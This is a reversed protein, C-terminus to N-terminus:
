WEFDKANIDTLELKSFDPDTMYIKSLDSSGFGKDGRESVTDFETVTEVEPTVVPSIVLQAIKDGKGIVHLSERCDVIIGVDGDYGSDITGLQVRMPTKLTMGSRPRVQAEYGEPIDIAIGTKVLKTENEFEIDELAYLDLGADHPHSRTPVVAKPHLKKIKITNM